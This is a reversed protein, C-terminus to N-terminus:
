DRSPDVFVVTKSILSGALTPVLHEGIVQYDLLQFLMPELGALFPPSKSGTMGYGDACLRSVILRTGFM